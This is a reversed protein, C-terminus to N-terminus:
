EYIGNELNEIFEPSAISLTLWLNRDPDYKMTIMQLTEKSYLHKANNEDYKDASNDFFFKDGNYSKLLREVSNENLNNTTISIVQDESLQISLNLNKYELTSSDKLKVGGVEENITEVYDTGLKKIVESKSDHITIDYLSYKGNTYNIIEQTPTATKILPTTQTLFFLGVSAVICLLVTMIAPAFYVKKRKPKNRFQLMRNRATSSPLQRQVFLENLSNKISYRTM